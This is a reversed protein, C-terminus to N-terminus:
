IKLRSTHKLFCNVGLFVHISINQIKGRWSRESIGDVYFPPFYTPNRYVGYTKPCKFKNLNNIIESSVKTKEYPKPSIKWMYSM